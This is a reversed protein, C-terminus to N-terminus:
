SAELQRSREKMFNKWEIKRAENMRYSPSYSSLCFTKSKPGLFVPLAIGVIDSQAEFIEAVGEAEIKERVRDRASGMADRSDINNWATAPFGHKHYVRIWEEEPCYALLVRSSLKSYFAEPELSDPAIRIRHTSAHHCWIKRDGNELSSFVFSEGFSKAMGAITSDIRALTPGSLWVAEPIQRIRKPGARYKGRAIKSAFGHGCLTTLINHTTNLPLGLPSAVESLGVFSKGLADVENLLDM